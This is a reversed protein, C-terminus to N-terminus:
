PAIAKALLQALTAKFTDLGLGGVFRAARELRPREEPEAQAAAQELAVVIAARLHDRPWEGTARMGEPTLSAMDVEFSMGGTFVIPRALGDQKMRAAAQYAYGENPALKRLVEDAQSPRGEREAAHLERLVPLTIDEWDRMAGESM